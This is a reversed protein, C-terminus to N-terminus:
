APYCYLLDPREVSAFECGSIVGTNYAFCATEEFLPLCQYNEHLWNQMSKYAASRVESNTSYASKLYYENYEEDLVRAAPFVGTVCQASLASHPERMPNGGTVKMTQIATVGENMWMPICTPVDYATLNLHVGIQDLYAQFMEYMRTTATDNTHVVDVTFGDPYASEAMYQKALELDYEYRGQSVYYQTDPSLVSDAAQYLVGFAVEGIAEVDLAHAIAKRVNIDTFEQQYPSMCFFLVSNSGVVGYGANAIDGAMLKAADTTGVNLVLDIENNQFAVFMATADTYYYVTIEDWDPKETKWYDERLKYITHSGSVNEVVEYPGTSIPSDWWRADDETWSEVASKNVVTCHEIYTAFPGFEQSFRITVTLGDDSVITNEFDICTFYNALSSSPADIFMKYTYIVDEGHLKDGDNFYVDDRLVM